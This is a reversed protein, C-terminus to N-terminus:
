LLTVWQRDLTRCNFSGWVEFYDPYVTRCLPPRLRAPPHSTTYFAITPEEDQDFTTTREIVVLSRAGPLGAELPEFPYVKIQRQDLRGHGSDGASVGASVQREFCGLALGDTAPIAPTKLRCNPRPEPRNELGWFPARFLPRWPGAM